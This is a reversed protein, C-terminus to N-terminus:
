ELENWFCHVTQWIINQVTGFYLFCHWLLLVFPCNICKRHDIDYSCCKYKQNKKGRKYLCSKLLAYNKKKSAAITQVWEHHCWYYQIKNLEKLDLSKEQSTVQCINVNSCTYSHNVLSSAIVFRPKRTRAM